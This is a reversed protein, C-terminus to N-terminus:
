ILCFVVAQSVCSTLTLYLSIFLKFNIPHCFISYLSQGSSIQYPLLVIPCPLDKFCPNDHSISINIIFLDTWCFIHLLRLNTHWFWTYVCIYLVLSSLVLLSLQLNQLFSKTLQYPYFMSQFLISWKSKILIHCCMCSSCFIGEIWTWM